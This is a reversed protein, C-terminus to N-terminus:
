ADRSVSWGLRQQQLESSPRNRDRLVMAQMDRQWWETFYLHYDTPKKGQDFCDFAEEMVLVGLRDCADLFAPSVPNHSTRIANYGVAKLLEVRREDARPIARSGLPGNAHHVCGGYLTTPVGNLLFGNDVSFSLTRLGFTANLEDGSDLTSQLTYLNPSDTSWPQIASLDLSATLNLTTNASIAASPLTVSVAESGDPHFIRLTATTHASSALTNAVTLEVDVTATRAALNITPTRVWAGWLPIHVPPRITLHVHRYIGAGAYWRSNSGESAVRVVLVNRGGAAFDVLETIDYEFTVYGYPRNGLLRGNFYCDSNMYVGDFRLVLRQGRASAPISLHLRYWAVGAVTYGTSKQGPSSGADFPGIRADPASADYLGGPAAAGGPSFVRVAVVNDSANHLINAPVPYARYVLYDECSVSELTSNTNTNTQLISTSSLPGHLAPEPQHLAATADLGQSGIHHGNIFTDDLAAVTGLALQLRGLSAAQLQAASARFHRRYWGYANSANYNTPPARWDHPVQVQQWHSDDLGPDSFSSNDGRHFLWTGNRLALTPSNDDAERPPLDEISFDHPVERTAWASDDFAPDVFPSPPPPPASNRAYGIWGSHPPYDISVCCPATGTAVSRGVLRPQHQPLKRDSWDLLLQRCCYWWCMCCRSSLVALDSLRCRQLLCRPLRRHHLSRCHQGLWLM